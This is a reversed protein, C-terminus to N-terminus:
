IGAESTDDSPPTARHVIVNCRMEQDREGARDITFSRGLVEWTEGRINVLDGASPQLGSAIRLFPHSRGDEYFEVIEGM